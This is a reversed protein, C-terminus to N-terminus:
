MKPAPPRVIQNPRHSYTLMGSLMTKVSMSLMFRPLNKTAMGGEVRTSHPRCIFASILGPPKKIVSM